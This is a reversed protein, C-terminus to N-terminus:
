TDERKSIWGKVTTPHSNEIEIWPTPKTFDVREHFIWGGLESKLRTALEKIELDTVDSWPKNFFKNNEATDEVEKNFISTWHKSWYNKYTKIKRDIDFWSYHRISPLQQYVQTMYNKYASYAEVNERNNLVETRVQHLQPTYFNMDPVPEYTNIFVYDCGDSGLSYLEGNEDYARHKLPIDHTIQPNNRSLRWKWPTADIRIKKSGGWYEIVPLSVLNCPKPMQRVLNKIKQYDDEHVVEDIDQQWCWDGNCLSRSVAKQQGDFLAFRKENWDRKVQHVKLRGDVQLKSLEQLAEWTGDTSGGDVVVVEDCFGLLSDISAEWPYDSEIVNKTTTYGSITVEKEVFGTIVNWFRNHGDLLYSEIEDLSGSWWAETSHQVNENVILDLGLLKAEIVVRPCTDGGLPLFALGTYESLKRLMDQYSLGSLLDFDIQQDELHKKTDEVGKIWSKSDIIAYKKSLSTNEARATRLREIHSFDDATFISSLVTTETDSLFSFNSEYREKQQNSMWFIHEAGAFFASVLKGHQTDRCDCTKGETAEHLEISRYRCFKYDYEVVFYNCNAVIAPLAQFPIQSFNFFVWLKQSGEGITEESVESSKLKYVKYPSTTALADTTLEAGGLYEDSFMDSVFIIDAESIQMSNRTNRKEIFPSDLM